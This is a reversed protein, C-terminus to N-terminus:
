GPVATPPTNHTVAFEATRGTRTLVRRVTQREYTEKRRSRVHTGNPLGRKAARVPATSDAAFIVAVSRNILDSALSPLQGFQLNAWRFEISVNKGVIFGADALGQQFAAVWRDPWLVPSDVM